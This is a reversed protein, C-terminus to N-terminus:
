FPTIDATATSILPWQNLYLMSQFVPSGFVTTALLLGLASGLTSTSDTIM